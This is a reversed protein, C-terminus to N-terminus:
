RLSPFSNQVLHMWMWHYCAQTPQFQKESAPLAKKSWTLDSVINVLWLPRFTSIEPRTWLVQLFLLRTSCGQLCPLRTWLAQLFPLRTWLVQLCPLRTWIANKFYWRKHHWQHCWLLYRSDPYFFIAQHRWGIWASLINLLIAFFPDIQIYIKKIYVTHAPANAWM